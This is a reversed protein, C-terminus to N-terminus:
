PPPPPIDVVKNVKTEVTVVVGPEGDTGAQSYEWRLRPDKDPLGLTAAIADVLPKLSSRLNDHDDYLHGKALRVHLHIVLVEAPCGAPSARRRSKRRVGLGV